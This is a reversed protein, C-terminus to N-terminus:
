WQASTEGLPELVILPLERQTFRRYEDVPPYVRSFLRWLRTREPGEAVRPRVRTREGSRVVVAEGAARLNLYWAPARPAGANAAMVVLNEGVRVYTLPTARRRGSRRGVTELVLVPAGFWRPAFRGRSLLYLAAHARSWGVSLRRASVSINTLRAVRSAARPGLPRV